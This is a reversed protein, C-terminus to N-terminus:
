SYEYLLYKTCYSWQVRVTSEAGGDVMVTSTDCLWSWFWSCVCCEYSYKMCVLVIRVTSQEEARM